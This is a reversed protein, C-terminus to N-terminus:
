HRLDGSGPLDICAKVSQFVDGAFLENIFRMKTKRSPKVVPDIGGGRALKKKARRIFPVILSVSQEVYVRARAREVKNQEARSREARIQEAAKERVHLSSNVIGLVNVRSDM